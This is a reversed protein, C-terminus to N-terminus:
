HVRKEPWGSAHSGAVESFSGSKLSTPFRGVVCNAGAMCVNGANPKVTALTQVMATTDPLLPVLNNNDYGAQRQTGGCLCFAFFSFL